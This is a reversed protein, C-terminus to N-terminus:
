IGTVEVLCGNQKHGRKVKYNKRRKYKFVIIKPARQVKLVKAAVKGGGVKVAGKDDYTMLVNDFSISDGEKCDKTEPSDVWFSTGKEAIFQRSGAKFVAKM